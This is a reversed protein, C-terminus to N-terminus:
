KEMENIEVYTKKNFRYVPNMKKREVYDHKDKMTNAINEKLLMSLRRQNYERKFKRKLKSIM